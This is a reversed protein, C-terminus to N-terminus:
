FRIRLHIPDKQEKRIFLFGAQYLDLTLTVREDRKAEEWAEEMSRSWHIDDLIFLTDNHAKEMGRELYDLMASGRHDGDIRMLDLRPIEDLVRPLEEEFAGTRVSANDLGLTGLNERAISASAPCAEISHVTGRSGGSLFMTGVGLSTGLELAHGTAYREALRYLLRGFRESSGSRRAIDRIRRRKSGSWKSGAGLDKVEIRRTDKRLEKVREEIPDYLARHTRDRILKELLEYVFPSHIGYRGRAKGFHLAYSTLERVSFSL